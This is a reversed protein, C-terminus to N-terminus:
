QPQCKTQFVYRFSHKLNEFHSVCVCGENNIYILDKIGKLAIIVRRKFRVEKWNNWARDLLPTALQAIYIYLQVFWSM